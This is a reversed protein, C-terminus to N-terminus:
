KSIPAAVSKPTSLYGAVENKNNVSFVVIEYLARQRGTYFQMPEAITRDKKEITKDDAIVNLTFRSRKPDAKKLQLSITSVPTPTSGKRLTFEYYNRDGRRRLEDLDERTRAILGSQVGLDGMARELKAKTAELDTRTSAIDTKASGLDTRVTAVEGAVEKHQQALRREAARQQRELEATRSAMRSQLDQETMGLRAGLAETSAQLQTNTTNLRQGLDKVGATTAQQAKELESVRSRTEFIFFLSALVYVVAVALLVNRVAPNSAATHPAEFGPDTM